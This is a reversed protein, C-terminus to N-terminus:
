YKETPNQSSQTKQYGTNTPIYETKEWRARPKGSSGSILRKGDSIEAAM